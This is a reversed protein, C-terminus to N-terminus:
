LFLFYFSLFFSLRGKNDRCNEEDEDEGNPCDIIDDCFQVDCIRYNPTKPCSVAEDGRCKNGFEFETTSSSSRDINDTSGEYDIDIDESTGRIPKEPKPYEDAYDDETDPESKIVEIESRSKTEDYESEIRWLDYFFLSIM